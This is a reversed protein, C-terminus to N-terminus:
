SRLHFSPVKAAELNYLNVIREKIMSNRFVPRIRKPDSNLNKPDFIRLYFAVWERRHELFQVVIIAKKVKTIM